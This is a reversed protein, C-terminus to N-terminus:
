ESGPRQKLDSQLKEMQARVSNADKARPAFKLYNRMETIAGARDNKHVLINAMLLHVDPIRHERDLRAAQRASKEALDLRNLHYHALGLLFHAEPFAVPDLSLAKECLEAVKRWNQEQSTVQALRVYSEVFLEDIGIAKQFANRADEGRGQHQYLRGLLVWADLYRPYIEVASTLLNEAEGPKNKGLAKKAKEFSKRAEKPALLNAASVLKGQVKGAPFLVITGVDIQGTINLEQLRISSSRYGRYEARLECGFLRSFVASASSGYHYDSGSPDFNYFDEVLFGQSADPLFANSRQDGGVQFGFNGAPDVVAEKKVLGHCEREVVTGMPPPEGNDLVVKGTLFIMPPSPQLLRRVEPQVISPQPTPAPQKPTEKPPEPARPTEGGQRGQQAEAQLVATLLILALLAVPFRTIPNM